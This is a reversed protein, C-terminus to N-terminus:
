AGRKGSPTMKFGLQRLRKVIAMGAGQSTALSNLLTAVNTCKLPTGQRTVFQFLLRIGASQEVIVPNRPWAGRPVENASVVTCKVYPTVVSLRGRSDRTLDRIRIVIRQSIAPTNNPDDGLTAQFRGDSCVDNIIAVLLYKDNSDFWKRATNMFTKLEDPRLGRHRASFHSPENLLRAWKTIGRRKSAIKAIRPGRTGAVAWYTKGSAPDVRQLARLMRGAPRLRRDVTLYESRPLRSFFCLVFLAQELVQRCLNGAALEFAGPFLEVDSHTLYWDAQDLAALPDQLLSM